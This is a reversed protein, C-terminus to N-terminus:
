LWVIRSAWSLLWPGFCTGLLVMFCAVGIILSMTRGPVAIEDPGPERFYMQNVVGLYYYASVASTLLAITTLLYQGSEIAAM